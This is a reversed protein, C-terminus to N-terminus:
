FFFEIPGTLEDGRWMKGHSFIPDHVNEQQVKKYKQFLWFFFSFFLSLSLSGMKCHLPYPNSGQDPFMGCAESCGLRHVVVALGMLQLYQLGFAQLKHESVLSVVLLLLKRAAVLCYGGSEVLLSFGQACCRLGLAAMILFLEVSM